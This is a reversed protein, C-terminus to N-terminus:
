VRGRGIVENVWALVKDDTEKQVTEDKTGSVVINLDRINKIEEEIDKPLLDAPKIELYTSFIYLQHALIRQSGSEINAISGRSLGVRKALYSQTMKCRLRNKKILAGLREYLFSEDM